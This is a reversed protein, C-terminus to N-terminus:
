GSTTFEATLVPPTAPPPAGGGGAPPGSTGGTGSGSSGGDGPVGDSPRDAGSGPISVGSHVPHHGLLRGTTTIIGPGGGSGTGGGDTPPPSGGGPPGGDNETEALSDSASVNITLAYGEILHFPTTGDNDQVSVPATTDISTGESLTASDSSSPTVPTTVAGSDTLTETDSSSKATPTSASVSGAETLGGFDFDGRPQAAIDDTETASDSSSKSTITNTTASESQSLTFTDSAAGLIDIIPPFPNGSKLIFFTYSYNGSTGYTVHYATSTGALPIQADVGVDWRGGSFLTRNWEEVAAPPTVYVAGGSNSSFYSLVALDYDRGTVVSATTFGTNNSSSDAVDALGDFPFTMDVGSISVAEGGASIVSFDFTFTVTSGEDGNMRRYMVIHSFADTRRASLQTWGTASANRLAFANADVDISVFIFDQPLYTPLTVAYTTFPPAGSINTQSVKDRVAAVDGPERFIFHDASTPGANLTTSDTFTFNDSSSKPTAVVTTALLMIPAEGAGTFYDFDFDTALDAVAGQPEGASTYADFDDPNLPQSM